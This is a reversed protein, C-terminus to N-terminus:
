TSMNKHDHTPGGGGGGGGGGGRGGIHTQAEREWGGVVWGMTDM